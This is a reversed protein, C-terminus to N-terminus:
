AVFLFDRGEKKNHQSMFAAIKKRAGAAGVAVLVMPTDPEAAKEIPWVPLGRKQGGIRRPHVEIFGSVEGGQEVILDHMLRGTPGAGWIIPAQRSAPSIGDPQDQQLEDKQLEDQQLEYQKSKAPLPRYQKELIPPPQKSLEPLRYNVLFHAKARMFQERTYVADTHTIRQQHERWRLLVPEPKGMQIGAADARLYLDYDEPWPMKRYGGLQELASRRFVAGPNPMPSEIFMQQHIEHPSRVSNLWKQYRELGGFIPESSFFEVCCSVIDVGPNHQFYELQLQLRLPLALDDADMRAIFSGRSHKVGENFTSAVGSGASKLLKVRSDSLALKAVAGDDSHDDVIILELNAHSQLLISDVASQLYTGGNRV